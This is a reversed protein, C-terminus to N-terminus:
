VMVESPAWDRMPLARMGYEWNYNRSIQARGGGKFLEFLNILSTLYLEVLTIAGNKACARSRSKRFTRVLM